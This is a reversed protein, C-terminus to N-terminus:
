MILCSWSGYKIQYAVFMITYQSYFASNCTNNIIILYYDCEELHIVATMMRNLLLALTCIIYCQHVNVFGSNAHFDTLTVYKQTHAHARTPICAHSHAQMCTAKSIWCTVHWWIPMQPKESMVMNKSM